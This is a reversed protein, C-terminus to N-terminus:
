QNDIITKASNYGQSISDVIQNIDPNEIYVPIELTQKIIEPIQRYKVRNDLFADVVADDAGVLIAPYNGGREVVYKATQLCPFFETDVQHFTLSKLESLRFPPLPNSKRGPYLLSHQIPLRMDTHSLQALVVGDIFEIMSHIISQPHIVVEVKDIDFGFLACAEIVEFGKNMMTASDVTIKAGMDWTPHKLVDEPLINNIDTNKDWFPGGSATLILKSVDDSNHGEMLQFLASHESDVPIIEAGNKLFKYISRGMAVMTEKNALCLRKGNQLATISPLIGIGGVLANVVIDVNEDQVIELIGDLEYLTECNTPSNQKIYNFGSLNSIAVKKPKCQEIQKTLLASNSGATLAYVQFLDPYWELVELTQIGISGTSGLIAVKKKM